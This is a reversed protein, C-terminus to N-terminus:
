EREPGVHRRSPEQTHISTRGAQSPTSTPPAPCSARVASQARQAPEDTVAAPSSHERATVAIWDAILQPDTDLGHESIVTHAGGEIDVWWRPSPADDPDIGATDHPDDVGGRLGLDIQLVAPGAMDADLQVPFPLLAAVLQVHEDIAETSPQPTNM